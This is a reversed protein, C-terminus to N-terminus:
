VEKIEERKHRVNTKLLNLLSHEVRMVWHTVVRGEQLSPRGHQKISCTKVTIYQALQSTQRMRSSAIRRTGLDLPRVLINGIDVLPQTLLHPDRVNMSNEGTNGM